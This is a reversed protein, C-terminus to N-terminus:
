VAVRKGRTYHLSLHSHVWFYLIISTVDLQVSIILLLTRIYALALLTQTM